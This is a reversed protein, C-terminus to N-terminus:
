MFQFLEVLHFNSLDARILKDIAKVLDILGRFIFVQFNFIGFLDLACKSCKALLLRVWLQLYQLKIRLVSKAM